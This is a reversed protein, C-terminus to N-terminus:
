SRFFATGEHTERIAGTALDASGGSAAAPTGVAQLDAYLGTGSVVKWNGAKFTITTPSTPVVVAVSRLTITGKTGILTKVVHLTRGAFRFTGAYPGSDSVVGSAVFSGQFSDPGTIVGNLDIRIPQPATAASPAVAVVALAAIAVAITSLQAKM